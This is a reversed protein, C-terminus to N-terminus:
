RGAQHRELIATGRAMWKRGEELWEAVECLTKQDEPAPARKVLAAGQLPDKLIDFTRKIPASHVETTMTATTADDLKALRQWAHHHTGPAIIGAQKLKGLLIGHELRSLDPFRASVCEYIEHTTLESKGDFAHLIAQAQPSLANRVFADQRQTDSNMM